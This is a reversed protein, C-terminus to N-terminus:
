TGERIKGPPRIGSTHEYRWKLRAIDAETAVLHARAQDEIAKQDKLSTINGFDSKIFDDILFKTAKELQLEM